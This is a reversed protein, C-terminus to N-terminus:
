CDRAAENRFDEDNEFVYFTEVDPISYTEKEKEPDSYIHM